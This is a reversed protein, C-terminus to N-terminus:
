AKKILKGSLKDLYEEVKAFYLVRNLAGLLVIVFVALSTHEVSYKTVGFNNSSFMGYVFMAGICTVLIGADAWDRANDPDVFQRWIILGQMILVVAFLILTIISTINIDEWNVDYACIGRSSVVTAYKGVTETHCRLGFASWVSYYNVDDKNNCDIFFPRFMEFFVSVPIIFKAFRHLPSLNYITNKHMVGCLKTLGIGTCVVSIIYGALVILNYCFLTAVFACAFCVATTIILSVQNEKFLKNMLVVMVISIIATAASVAAAVAINSECYFISLM